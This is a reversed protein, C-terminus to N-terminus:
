WDARSGLGARMTVLRSADLKGDILTGTRVVSPEDTKSGSNNSLIRQSTGQLPSPVMRFFMPM